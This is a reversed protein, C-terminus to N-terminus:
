YASDEYRSTQLDIFRCSANLHDSENLARDSWHKPWDSHNPGEGNSLTVTADGFTNELDDQKLDLGTLDVKMLSAFQLSGTQLNSSGKFQVSYLRSFDFNTVYLEAGRLNVDKFTVAELQAKFLDCNQMDVNAAVVGHLRARSFSANRFYAGNLTAGDLSSDSFRAYDFNKGTFDSAQLCTRRLDLRYGITNFHSKANRESQIQIRTRRGLVDLIVQLDVRPPSLEQAWTSIPHRLIFSSLGLNKPKTKSLGAPANERVYACLIEMIQIHDRLSDQAIRELSYIAGIRVELNPVTKEGQEDKIIKEAGLGEVAKMIRETIMGQEAVDTQKQAVMTRWIVFPAGIM